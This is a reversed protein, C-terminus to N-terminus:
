KATEKELRAFEDQLRQKLRNMRTTVNGASIGLVEAIEESSHGDLYLLILARNLEDLGAVLRQLVRMNDSTGDLLPDDFAPETALDDINSFDRLRRGEGRYRSIAVNM